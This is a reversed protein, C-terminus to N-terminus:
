DKTNYLVAGTLTSITMTNLYEGDRWIEIDITHDKPFEWAKVEITDMVATAFDSM